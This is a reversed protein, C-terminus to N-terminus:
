SLLFVQLFLSSSNKERTIKWIRCLGNYYFAPSLKSIDIRSTIFRQVVFLLLLFISPSIILVRREFMEYGFSAGIYGAVGAFLMSSTYALLLRLLMTLKHEKDLIMVLSYGPLFSCLAAAATIKIVQVPSIHKWDVFLEVAKSSPFFIIIFLVVVFIAVFTINAMTSEGSADLSKRTEEKRNEYPLYYKTLGFVLISIVLSLPLTIAIPVLLYSLISYASLGALLCGPMILPLHKM